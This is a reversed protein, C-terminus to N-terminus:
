PLVISQLLIGAIQLDHPHTLKINSPDGDTLTIKEGLSEVVTADDTFSDRFDQEYAKKLTATRFVQPTQVTRYGTRNLAISGDATVQRLSEAPTVVPICNGTQSAVAFTRQILSRTVLPRAADHVAVLGTSPLLDLANKVSHFRTEGGAAVRHPIPLDYRTCLEDWQQFLLAPLAVVINIGPIAEHFASLSYMLVPRGALLMFQKPTGSKMRTGTGGAVIIVSHNSKV